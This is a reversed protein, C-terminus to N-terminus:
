EWVENYKEVSWVWSDTYWGGIRLGYKAVVCLALPEEVGFRWLWKGLFVKNFDM